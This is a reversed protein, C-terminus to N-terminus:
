RGSLAGGGLGRESIHYNKSIIFLDKQSDPPSAQLRKSRQRKM